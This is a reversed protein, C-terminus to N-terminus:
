TKERRRLEVKMSYSHLQHSNRIMDDMEQREKLISRHLQNDSKSIEQLKKLHSRYQNKKM